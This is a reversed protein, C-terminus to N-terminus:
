RAADLLDSILAEIMKSPSTGAEDALARLRTMLTGDLYLTVPGRRREDPKTTRSGSTMERAVKNARRRAVDKILRRTKADSM